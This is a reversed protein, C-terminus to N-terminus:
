VKAQVPLMVIHHSGSGGPLSTMDKFTNKELVAQSLLKFYTANGPLGKSLKQEFTPGLTWSTGPLGLNSGFFYM